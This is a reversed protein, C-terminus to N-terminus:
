KKDLEFADHLIRQALEFYEDFVLCTIKTESVFMTYINISRSKLTNILVEKAVLNTKMGAGIISIKAINEKIVFDDLKNKEKLYDLKTKIKFFDKRKASFKIELENESPLDEQMLVELSGLEDSLRKIEDFGNQKDLGKLFFEVEDDSAAIATIKENNKKSNIQNEDLLLTGKENPKFSSLVTLPVKYKLAIEVSRTQLVKAGQIALELMEQYSLFELKRASKVIRPDATYVGDVDTYIECLDAKLAASIAVATTDSGGRGLTSIRAESSVGQFGAVVPIVGQMICDTLQAPLIELIKANSYCSDTRVPIQWGLFSKAKYGKNQLALALLATSVQEGTSLISDYEALEENSFIKFNEEAMKVLNNTVGAMASAVVVISDGQKIRSIVINAVNNIRQIDAVSTGGFKQVVLM